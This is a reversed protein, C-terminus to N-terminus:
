NSLIPTTASRYALLKWLRDLEHNIYRALEYQYLLPESRNRMGLSFTPSPAIVIFARLTGHSLRAWAEIYNLRMQKHWIDISSVCSSTSLPSQDKLDKPIWEGRSACPNVPDYSKCEDLCELHEPLRTARM